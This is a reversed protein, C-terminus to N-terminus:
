RALREALFAAVESIDAGKSQLDHVEDAVVEAGENSLSRGTVELAIFIFDRATPSPFEGRAWAAYAEEIGTIIQQVPTEPLAGADAEAIREQDFAYEADQDADRRAYFSLPDSPLDDRPIM